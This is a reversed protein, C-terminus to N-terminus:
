IYYKMSLNIVDLILFRELYDDENEAYIIKKDKVFGHFALNIDEYIKNKNHKFDTLRILLKTRNELYIFDQKHIILIKKLSFINEFFYEIIPNNSLIIEDAIIYYEIKIKSFYSDNTLGRIYTKIEIYNDKINNDIIIQFKKEEITSCDIVKQCEKKYWPIDLFDELIEEITKFLFIPKM